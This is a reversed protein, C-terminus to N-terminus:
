LWGDFTITEFGLIIVNPVLLIRVYNSPKYLPLIKFRFNM